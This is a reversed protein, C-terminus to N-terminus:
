FKVYIFDDTYVKKPDLRKWKADYNQSEEMNSALHFGM